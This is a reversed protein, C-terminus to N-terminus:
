PSPRYGTISDVAHRLKPPVLPPGLEDVPHRFLVLSTSMEKVDEHHDSNKQTMRQQEAIQQWM